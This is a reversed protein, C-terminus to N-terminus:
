KNINCFAPEKHNTVIIGQGMGSKPDPGYDLTLLPEGLAKKTNERAAAIDADYQKQLQNLRGERDM